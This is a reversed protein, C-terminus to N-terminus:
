CYIPYYGKPRFVPAGTEGTRMLTASTWLKWCEDSLNYDKIEDDTLDLGNLEEVTNKNKMFVLTYEHTSLFGM